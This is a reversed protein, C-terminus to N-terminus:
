FALYKLFTEFVQPWQTSKHKDSLYWSSYKHRLSDLNFLCCFFDRWIDMLSRKRHWRRKVTFVVDTKWVTSQGHGCLVQRTVTVVVRALLAVVTSLLIPEKNIGWQPGSHRVGPRAENLRHDTRLRGIVGWFQEGGPRLHASNLGWSVAMQGWAEHCCSFLCCSRFSESCSFM